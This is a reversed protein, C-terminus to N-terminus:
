AQQIELLLMYVNGTILPDTLSCAAPPHSDDALFWQTANSVFSRYHGSTPVEGLHIVGARLSFPHWTVVSGEAEFVPLSLQEQLRIPTSNKGNGVYRPLALFAYREATILARVPLQSSWQEIMSQLDDSVPATLFIPSLGEEDVVYGAEM